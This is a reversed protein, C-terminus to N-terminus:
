SCGRFPRWHREFDHFTQAFDKRHEVAVQELISPQLQDLDVVLGLVDVRGDIQDLPVDDDTGDQGHAHQQHEQATTPRRMTMASAMGVLMM